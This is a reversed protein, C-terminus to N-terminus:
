GTLQCGKGAFVGDVLFPKRYDDFTFKEPRISEKATGRGDLKFCRWTFSKKKKKRNSFTPLKSHSSM